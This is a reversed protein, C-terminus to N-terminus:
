RRGIGFKLSQNPRGLCIDSVYIAVYFAMYHVTPLQLLRKFKDSSAVVQDDRLEAVEATDEEISSKTMATTETANGLSDMRLDKEDEQSVRDLEVADASDAAAGRRGVIQDDTRLQLTVVLTFICVLTLGVSVLFYLYVRGSMRKVFETSVLPSITAGLGYVAHMFNM